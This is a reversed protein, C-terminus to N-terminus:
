KAAAIAIPGFLLQVLVSVFNNAHEVMQEARTETWAAGAEYTLQQMQHNEHLAAVAIM